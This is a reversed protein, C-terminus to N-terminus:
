SWCAEWDRTRMPEAAFGPWEASRPASGCSVGSCIASVIM